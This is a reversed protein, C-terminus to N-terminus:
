DLSEALSQAYDKISFDEGDMLKKLIDSLALAVHSEIKIGDYDTNLITAKTIKDNNMDGYIEYGIYSTSIDQGGYNIQPYAKTIGITTSKIVLTGKNKVEGSKATIEYITINETTKGGDTSGWPKKESSYEIDHFGLDNLCSSLYFTEGKVYSKSKLDDINDNKNSSNDEANLSESDASTSTISETTNINSNNCGVLLVVLVITIIIALVKKM